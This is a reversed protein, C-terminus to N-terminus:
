DVYPDAGIEKMIEQRQKEHVLLDVRSKHHLAETRKQAILFLRHFRQWNKSWLVVGAKKAMGQLWKYTNYGLGELLKDELSLMFQASGSEGQRGARGALQRDIRLSEHRETGIVHLGGKEIVSHEPKIDTGRGAMNTAITVRGRHGAEAVIDAERVNQRANLLRHEVGDMSLIESLWESKDVTRTGILVARGEQQLKKAMKSVARFKSEENPFVLDPMQERRVPRNTPVQVVWLKYVRRIEMRNQVATGSMGALHTYLRWYTQYTVRADHGGGAEHDRLGGGRINVREKAEVAQHLGDSWTRDPQPRGTSEDIIVIKKKEDIMYHQNLVFRHNAQLAQEIADHLRDMAESHEGRPPNAYRALARGGETMLFKQKRADFQFHEKEVMQKALNDAWLYVQIHPADSDTATGEEDASKTVILPTRAEDIFISDAEDILAFHHGRQIWQDEGRGGRGSGKEWSAWFSQSNGAQSYEGLGKLRDRLFDFGFESATGYTIDDRYAQKREGDPMKQQLVGVTLGLMNFLPDLWEKDRKALYDNVTAVHVGKGALSHMCASLSAILTKGEGTAVEALAKNFMVAGAALQVDFPRLGLTRKAAVCILGFMEPMIQKLPEGGRARGRFERIKQKVEVDNLNDFEGEWHRSPPIVLAAQALRRRWPSGVLALIQNKWPRGLRHPPMYARSDPALHASGHPKKLPRIGHPVEGPPPPVPVMSAAVPELGTVSPKERSEEDNRQRIM